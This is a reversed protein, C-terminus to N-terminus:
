AQAQAQSQGQGQGQGQAQAQGPAQAQAQGQGQAQGQAQSFLKKPAFFTNFFVFLKKYFISFFPRPGNPICIPGFFSGFIYLLFRFQGKNCM